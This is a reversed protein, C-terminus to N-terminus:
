SSALSLHAALLGGSHFPSAHVGLTPSVIVLTSQEQTSLTVLLVHQFYNVIITLEKYNFSSGSLSLLSTSTQM